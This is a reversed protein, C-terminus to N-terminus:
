EFNFDIFNLFDSNLKTILVNSLNHKSLRTRLYTLIMSLASFAREVTVQTPPVALVVQAIKYLLPEKFKMSEWFLLVNTDLPVRQINSFNRIKQAVDSDTNDDPETIQALNLEQELFSDLESDRTAPSLQSAENQLQPNIEKM